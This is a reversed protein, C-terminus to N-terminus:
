PRAAVAPRQPGLDAPFLARLTPDIQFLRAYFASAVADAQPALRGFSTQVLATQDPTM